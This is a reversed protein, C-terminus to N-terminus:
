VPTKNVIKLDNQNFMVYCTVNEGTESNTGVPIILGVYGISRLWDSADQNGIISAITGYIMAGDSCEAISSCEYDWLEREVGAYASKGYETNLYYKYFTRAIKMAESPSIRTASLYKGDPVEVQMVQGGRAYAKATEFSDTLYFGNGHAMEGFGSLIYKSDFHDFDAKTGHYLLKEDVSEYMDFRRRTAGYQYFNYIDGIMEDYYLADYTFRTSNLGNQGMVEVEMPQNQHYECFKRLAALQQNTPYKAMQLWQNSYRINGMQVFQIRSTVGPIRFVADHDWMTELITGDTLIWGRAASFNSAVPIKQKASAIVAEPNSLDIESDDTYELKDYEKDEGNIAGNVMDTGMQTGFVSMIDKYSLNEWGMGQYTEPELYEVEFMCQSKIFESRMEPKDQLTYKRLFEQYDDEDFDLTCRAGGIQDLTYKAERLVSTGVLQKAQQESIIITRSM